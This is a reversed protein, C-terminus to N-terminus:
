KHRWTIVVRRFAISHPRAYAHHVFHLLIVKMCVPMQWHRPLSISHVCESYSDKIASSPLQLLINYICECTGKTCKM